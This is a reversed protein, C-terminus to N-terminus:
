QLKNLIKIADQYRNESGIIVVIYRDKINNVLLILNQGSLPTTGTKGALFENMNFKKLENTNHIIIKEGTTLDTIETKGMSTIDLFFENQYFRKALILMDRASSYNKPDDYGALNSIKTDDLHLAKIYENGKKIISNYDNIAYLLQNNSSILIAKIADRITFKQGKKLKLPSGDHSASFDDIMITQDLNYEDYIIKTTILKTLSAILLKDTSNKEFIIQNTNLNLIAIAKASYNDSLLNTNEKYPKYITSIENRHILKTSNNAKINQKEKHNIISVIEFTNEILLFFLIFSSAFIFTNILFFIINRTTYINYKTM